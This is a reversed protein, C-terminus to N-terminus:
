QSASATNVPSALWPEPDIPSADQRIEFYLGPLRHGSTAGVTAVPRGLDVWDGVSVLTEKNGGYLTMFSDGHDLIVLEGFGQLWDSYVVEGDAIARVPAGQTATIFLGKWRVKGVSKVDDYRAYIEGSTPMAYTGRGSSFYGSQAVQLSKLEEMLTQLRSSDAKLEAVTRTKNQTDEDVRQIETSVSEREKVLTQHQSSAKRQIHNLWNRDKLATAHAQEVKSIMVIQQEIQRNQARVFFDTYVGIRNAVAPNDHQLVLRLGTGSQINQQQRLANALISKRMALQQQEEAVQAELEKLTGNFRTIENRLQKIRADRESVKGTVENATKALLTRTNRNKALQEDLAKLKEATDLIQQEVSQLDQPSQASSSQAFVTSTSVLISVSVTVTAVAAMTRALLSLAQVPIRQFHQKLSSGVSPRLGLSVKSNILPM